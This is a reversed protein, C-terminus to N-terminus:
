TSEHDGGIKVRTNGRCGTQVQYLDLAARVYERILGVQEMTFVDLLRGEAYGLAFSLHKEAEDCSPFSRVGGMPEGAKYEAVFEDLTPM